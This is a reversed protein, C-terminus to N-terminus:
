PERTPVFECVAAARWGELETTDVASVTYCYTLNGILLSDIYTTDSTTGILELLDYIELYYYIRFEGLSIFDGQPYSWTLTAREAGGEVQFNTPTPPPDYMFGTPLDTHDKTCSGFFALLSVVGLVIVRKM